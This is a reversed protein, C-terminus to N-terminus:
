IKTQMCDFFSKCLATNARLTSIKFLKNYHIKHHPFISSIMSGVVFAIILPQQIKELSIDVLLKFKLNPNLLHTNTSSMLFM